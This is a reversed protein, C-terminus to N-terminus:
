FYKQRLAKMRNEVQIEHKHHECTDCPRAICEKDKAYEKYARCNCCTNFFMKEEKTMKDWITLDKLVDRKELMYDGDAVPNYNKM